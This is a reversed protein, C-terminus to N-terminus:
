RTRWCKAVAAPRPFRLQSGVPSRACHRVLMTTKRISRPTAGLKRALTLRTENIDVAIIAGAAIANAAMIAALGMRELADADVTRLAPGVDPDYFDIPAARAIRSASRWTWRLRADLVGRPMEVARGDHRALYRDALTQIGLYQFLWDREPKLASALVDLDFRGSASTSCGPTSAMSRIASRFSMRYAADREEPSASLSQGTVEKFLASSFARPWSAHLGSGRKSSRPPPWCWRGSLRRPRSAARLDHADSGARRLRDAADPGLKDVSASSAEECKKLNSLVIAGTVRTRARHAPRPM